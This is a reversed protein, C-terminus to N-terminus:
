VIKYVYGKWYKNYAIGQLVTIKINSDDTIEFDYYDRYIRRSRHNYLVIKLNTSALEHEFSVSNYEDLDEQRIRFSFVSVPNDIEALSDALDTLVENLEEGTIDQELNEDINTDVLTGLDEKSLKTM